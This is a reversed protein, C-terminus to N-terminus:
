DGKILRFSDEEFHTTSFEFLETDLLGQMSHVMYPPVHFVDGEELVVRTMESVFKKVQEPIAPDLDEPLMAYLVSLRGKNHVYFTETKLKHWHVSCQLGKKFFLLKGCYKDNNVIWSEFGWGKQHFEPLSM